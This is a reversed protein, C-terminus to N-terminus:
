GDRQGEQNWKSTAEEVTKSSPGVIDNCDYCFPSYFYEQELGTSLNVTVASVIGVNLSGCSCPKLEEKSM